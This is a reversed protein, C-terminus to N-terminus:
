PGLEAALDDMSKSGYASAPAQASAAAPAGVGLLRNRARDAYQVQLDQSIGPYQASLIAQAATDAAQQRQNTNAQKAQTLLEKLQGMSEPGLGGTLLGNVIGMAKDAIGASSAFNKFEFDTLRHTMAQAFHALAAKDGMGKNMALAALGDDIDKDADNIADIHFQKVTDTHIHEADSHLLKISGLQPAVNARATKDASDIRDRYFAMGQTYAEKPNLGNGVAASAFGIASRAAKKEEDTTANDLLPQLGSKVATQQDAQVKTRDYEYQVKGAADRFVYRGGGQVEEEPKPPGAAPPNGLGLMEWPMSGSPAQDPAPPQQGMFDKLFPAPGAPGQDPAPAGAKLLSSGAGQRGLQRLEGATVTGDKNLDWASNGPADYEKSGKRYIPTADDAGVGAFSPATTAIYNEGPNGRISAIQDATKGHLKLLRQNDLELQEQPTMARVQEPTYGLAKAEAPMIQGIGSAGTYPNAATPRGGSEFDNPSLSLGATPPAGTPAPAAEPAQHNTQYEGMQWGTVRGLEQLLAQVKAQDGSAQADPLAKQIEAIHKDTEAKSLRADTAQYRQNEIDHYRKTEGQAAQQLALRQKEKEDDSSQKQRFQMMQGFSDLANMIPSVDTAKPPTYPVSPRSLFPTIDFGSFLTM